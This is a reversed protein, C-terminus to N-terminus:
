QTPQTFNATGSMGALVPAPLSTFGAVVAVTRSVADVEAGLQRVSAQHRAGTEDVVFEFANGPKLWSLWKSPVILQVEFAESSVIKMLPQNPGPTEFENISLEAVRGDFPANIVCDKTRASIAEAQALAKQMEAKSVRVDFEGVAGYQQLEINNSHASKSASYAAKAARVEAQQIECDFKLLVDDKSFAQGVLLPTELVRANLDVSVVAEQVSKVVGRVPELGQAQAMASSVSLLATSIVVERFAKYKKFQRM